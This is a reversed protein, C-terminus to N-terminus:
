INTHGTAESDLFVGGFHNSLNLLRDLGTGNVIKFFHKKSTMCYM